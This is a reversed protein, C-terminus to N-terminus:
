ASVPVRVPEQCPEPMDPRVQRAEEWVRPKGRGEHFYKQHRRRLKRTTKMYEAAEAMAHIFAKATARNSKLFDNHVWFSGGIRPLYKGTKLIVKFGALKAKAAHPFTLLGAHIDGNIM